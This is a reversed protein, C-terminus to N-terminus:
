AGVAAKGNFGHEGRLDLLRTLHHQRALQKGFDNALEGAALHGDLDVLVMGRGDAAHGELAVQRAHVRHVEGGHGGNLIAGAKVEGLVLEPVHDAMHDKGNGGVLAPLDERAAQQLNGGPFAAQHGQVTEAQGHLFHLTGKGQGLSRVMNGRHNGAADEALQALHEQIFFGGAGQGNALTMQLGVEAVGAQM